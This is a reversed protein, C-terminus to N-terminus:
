RSPAGTGTLQYRGDAPPVPQQHHRYKHGAPPAATGWM